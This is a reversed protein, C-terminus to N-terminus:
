QLVHKARRLIFIIFIIIGLIIAGLGIQLYTTLASSRQDQVAQDQLFSSVTRAQAKSVFFSLPSSKETVVGTTDTVAVYAIHKGDALNEDLTYTWNGNADTNVTLVLPMQSYIYILVLSSPAATGAITTHGTDPTTDVHEVKFQENTTGQTIPQQIQPADIIAQEVPVLSRELPASGAITPDTRVKLEALDEVGDNDTDVKKPDTGFDKELDNPVGDHDDDLFMVFPTAVELSVKGSVDVSSGSSHLTVNQPSESVVPLPGLTPSQAQITNLAGVTTTATSAGPFANSLVDQTKLAAVVSGVLRTTVLTKCTADPITGCSIANRYTDFIAANCLDQDAIKMTRCLPVVYQARLKEECPELTKIGAKICENNLEYSLYIACLAPDIVGAEACRQDVDSKLAITEATSAFFGESAPSPNGTTPPLQNQTSPPTVPNAPAGITGPTPAQPVPAPLTPSTVPTPPPIVGTGGTCSAPDFHKCDSACRLNGGMFKFEICSLGRVDTGDCFESGEIINNGCVQTGPTIANTGPPTITSAPFTCKSTDLQCSSTCSLTGGSFGTGLSTCTAGRLNMGDCQEGIQLSGNGCNLQPALCNTTDLQCTTPSCSLMGGTYGKGLTSCTKGGLNTGDCAENSQLFGDNCQAQTCSQEIQPKSKVTGCSNADTCSRRTVGNTCSSWTGCSWQEVCSLTPTCASTVFQCKSCGLTGGTYGKTVCSQGTLNTGDCQEGPEVVNNSCVSSPFSACSVTEQPKYVTTGCNNIDTCSRRQISTPAGGVTAIFCASWAGCSWQEVCASTPTCASTVFQCTTPICALTGGTFGKGITTCTAGGLLAGDCQEGSQLIGDGCQGTTPTCSQEIPPKNAKAVCSNADTCSRNQSYQISRATTNYTPNCSSWNTCSWNEVCTTTCASTDFQCTSPSCALTGGTYGQGLTTCTKMDLDNGDCQERLDEVIGNGCTSSTLLCTGSEIPESNATGCYHKDTCTRTITGNASCSSWYDCVWWETCSSTTCAQTDYQCGSCLLTGGTFGQTTCSAGNLNFGTFYSGQVLNSGDCQEGPDIYGNGCSPPPITVLASVNWPYNMSGENHTEDYASVRYSYVANSNFGIDRFFYDYSGYGFDKVYQNWPIDAILVNAGHMPQMEQRWIHYGEADTSGPSHWSLQAITQGSSSLITSASSISVATPPTTDTNGFTSTQSHVTRTRVVAFIVASEILLAGIFFAAIYVHPHHKNM